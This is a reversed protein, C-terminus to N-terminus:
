ILPESRAEESNMLESWYQQADLSWLPHIPLHDRGLGNINGPKTAFSIAILIRLGGGASIADMRSTGTNEQTYANLRAALFCMLLRRRNRQTNVDQSQRCATILKDIDNAYQERGAPETPSLPSLIEEVTPLVTRTHLNLAKVINLADERGWTECIKRAGDYINYYDEGEDVEKKYIYM